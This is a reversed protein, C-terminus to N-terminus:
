GLAALRGRVLARSERLHWGCVSSDGRHGPPVPPLIGGWLQERGATGRVSGTVGLGGRSSCPRLASGAAPPAPSFCRGAPCPLERPASLSARPRAQGAAAVAGGPERGEGAGPAIGGPLCRWPGPCRCERKYEAMLRKLATGAM